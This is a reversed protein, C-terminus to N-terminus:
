AIQLSSAMNAFASPQHTQWFFPAPAMGQAIMWVSRSAAHQDKGDMKVFVCTKRACAMLAAILLVSLTQASMQWLWQAKM